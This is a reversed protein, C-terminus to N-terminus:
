REPPRVLAPDFRFTTGRDELARGFVTVVAARASIGSDVDRAIDARMKALADDDVRARAAQLLANMAIAAPVGRRVLDAAIVLPQTLSRRPLDRHFDALAQVGIGAQLASAGALLEADSVSVGLAARANALSQLLESVVHIIRADDAGKASGEIAKSVLPSTPLGLKKASDTLTRMAAALPPRLDQREADQSILTRFPSVLVVSACFVLRVRRITRM